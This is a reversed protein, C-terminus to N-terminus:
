PPGQRAKCATDQVGTLDFAAARATEHQVPTLM